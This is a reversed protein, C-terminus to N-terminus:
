VKSQAEAGRYKGRCGYHCSAPSIHGTLEKQGPALGLTRRAGRQTAVAYDSPVINGDADLMLLVWMPRAVINVADADLEAPAFPQTCKAALEPIALINTTTHLDCQSHRCVLKHDKTFAHAPGNGDRLSAHVRRRSTM